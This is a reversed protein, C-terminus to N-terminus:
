LERDPSPVNKVTGQLKERLCIESICASFSLGSDIRSASLPHYDVAPVFLDPFSTIM